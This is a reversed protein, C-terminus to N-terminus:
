TTKIKYMAQDARSIVDNPRDEARITSVGVAVSLAVEQNNIRLPSAATSEAVRLAM